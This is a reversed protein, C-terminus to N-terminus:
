KNEAKTQLLKILGDDCNDKVIIQVQRSSILPYEYEAIV